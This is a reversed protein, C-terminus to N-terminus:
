VYMTICRSSFVTGLKMCLYKLSAITEKLILEILKNIQPFSFFITPFAIEQNKGSFYNRKKFYRKLKTEFVSHINANTNM